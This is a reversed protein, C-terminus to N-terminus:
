SGASFAQPVYRLSKHKSQLAISARNKIRKGKVGFAYIDIFLAKPKINGIRRQILLIYVTIFPFNM